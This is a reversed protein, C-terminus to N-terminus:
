KKGSGSAKDFMRGGGIDVSDIIAVITCDTPKDSMTDTMRASSGGVLMVVEGEGAGVTDLSAVARGSEEFTLVDLPQVILIKIGDLRQAKKTSVVQGKVIGLQM